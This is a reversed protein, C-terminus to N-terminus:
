DFNDWYATTAVTFNITNDSFQFIMMHNSKTSLLYLYSGYFTRHSLADLSQGPYSIKSMLSYTTKFQSSSLVHFYMETNIGPNEKQKSSDCSPTM